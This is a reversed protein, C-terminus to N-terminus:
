RQRFIGTEDDWLSANVLSAMNNAQKKLTPLVALTPGGVVAALEQLAQSESVFLSSMQVDYLELRGSAANYTAPQQDFANDYMPSNDM